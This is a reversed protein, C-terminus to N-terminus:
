LRRGDLAEGVERRGVEEDARVKCVRKYELEQGRGDRVRPRVEGRWRRRVGVECRDEVEARGNLALTLHHSTRTPVSPAAQSDHM